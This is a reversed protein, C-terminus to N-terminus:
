KEMEVLAKLAEVGIQLLAPDKTTKLTTKVKEVADSKKLAVRAKRSLEADHECVMNRVIVLGRHVVGPDEDQCLELVIEPARELDLLASVVSSDQETLMALAGGAARRTPLDDVDAMAVLLHLRTRARTSGETFKDAGAPIVTLNCILECAARRLMNNNGMLLDEVDDWALKIISNAAYPEPASALNTLALLSEFVPLLDRPHDAALGGSKPPKLLAVLPPVAETIDPTTGPAFVHAPNLSILVRALAHAADSNDIDTSELNKQAHSVLLKVAGQQAIKGRDKPNRSFALLVRDTLQAAAPSRGKNLKTLTAVTGAQVLAACRARVHDDDELPSPEAPKTANAYAKLQSVKKQEESLVPAYQALNTIISLGGVIIEPSEPSAELATLLSKLFAPDKALAEKVEPKLSTYALGEISDSVNRGEEVVALTSKFLDVLESVDDDAMNARQDGTKVGATRLKALVTAAVAPQKGTGNNVKHSLWTACYQAIATRCAGDICAANLLLLFADHVVHSRYQKGLFPMISSLFGNTLFLEAMMGPIVPFLNAAASFALVLDDGKQRAVHTTIYKYLFEQGTANAVEFFKSLVLTAQGRVDAPLRVDLSGMLAEFADEDIFSQLRHTDAMLLLAIGKLARGDHDHGSEMLKALFLQFLDDEVRLRVDESSWLKDDLVVSRLCNAADDGREYVNDFFKTTSEELESAFYQRVAPSQRALEAIIFNQANSMTPVPQSELIIRLSELAVPAANAAEPSKLYGVTEDGARNDHYLAYRRCLDLLPSNLQDNHIALFAAQVDPNDHGLAAAERLKRSAQAKDGAVSLEVAEKALTSAREESLKRTMRQVATM